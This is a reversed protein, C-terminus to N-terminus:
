SFGTTAYETPPSIPADCRTEGISESGNQDLFTFASSTGDAKQTAAWAPTPPSWSDRVSEQDGSGEGLSPGGEWRAKEERSGRHSKCCPHRTEGGRQGACDLHAYAREKVKQVCDTSCSM